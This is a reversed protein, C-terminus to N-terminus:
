QYISTEMYTTKKEEKKM